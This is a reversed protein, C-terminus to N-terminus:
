CCSRLIDANVKERSRGEGEDVRRGCAVESEIVMEEMESGWCEFVVLGSGEQAKGQRVGDVGERM